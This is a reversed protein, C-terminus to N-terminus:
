STVCCMWRFAVATHTGASAAIEEAAFLRAAAHSWKLPVFSPLENTMAMSHMPERAFLWRQDLEVTLIGGGLSPELYGGIEEVRM